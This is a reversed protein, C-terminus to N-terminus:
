SKLSGSRQIQPRREEPSNRLTPQYDGFNRSVYVGCTLCHYSSKQLHSRDCTGFRRYGVIPKPETVDNFVASTLPCVPLVVVACRQTLKFGWKYFDSLNPTDIGVKQSIVIHMNAYPYWCITPIYQGLRSSLRFLYKTRTGQPKM